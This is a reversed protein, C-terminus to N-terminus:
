DGGSVSRADIQCSYTDQQSPCHNLWQGERM